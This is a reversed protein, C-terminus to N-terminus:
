KQLLQLEEQTLEEGQSLKATIETFLSIEKEELDIKTQYDQYAKKLWDDEQELLLLLNKRSQIEREVAPSSEQLSLDEIKQRNIEKTKEIRKESGGKINSARQIADREQKNSELRDSMTGLLDVLSINNDNYTNKIARFADNKNEQARAFETEIDGLQQITNSIAKQTETSVSGFQPMVQQAFKSTETTKDEDVNIGLKDYTNQLNKNSNKIASSIQINTVIKDIQEGIQPSFAKLMIASLGSFVGQAGGAVNILENLGNVLKTVDELVPEIMDQNFLTSIVQEGAAQLTKMRGEISSAYEEQMADMMGDADQTAEIAKDYYEQNNLLAAFRNYQFKGAVKEGVAVKQTESLGKWTDQLDHLIADFGRFEGQADRVQVGISSLAQAYEGEAIGDDTKGSTKIDAFRQMITKMGNGIEEASQRTVSQITAVSAIFTDESAGVASAVSASRQAATMLEGVNSATNNAVNALKDLSQSMEDISIGFANRYATIQDATTATDQESVNALKIALESQLKSEPLSFGEQTFVKIANTYDVTTTALGQAAKNAYQALERMNQASAQSVMQIQTLSEDLDKMYRVSGSISSMMEQFLSATIGWRVTNGMTTAMKSLVSNASITQKQLTTMAATLSNITAKGQAGM